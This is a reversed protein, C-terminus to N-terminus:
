RRISYTADSKYKLLDSISTSGFLVSVLLRETHYVNECCTAMGGTPLLTKCRLCLLLNAEFVTPAFRRSIAIGFLVFPYFEWCRHDFAYEPGYRILSGIRLGASHNGERLVCCYCCPLMHQGLLSRMPPSVSESEHLEFSQLCAREADHEM